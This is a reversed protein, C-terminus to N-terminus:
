PPTFGITAVFERPTFAVVLRDGDIRVTCQNGTAVEVAKALASCMADPSPVTLVNRLERACYDMAAALAKERDRESAGTLRDHARRKVDDASM